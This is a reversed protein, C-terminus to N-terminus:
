VAVLDVSGDVAEALEDLAVLRVPVGRAEQVLLPFLLSTFDERAALVTASPELSAAILGVFPSVQPGIAVDAEAVGHLRAWCARSRGVSLDWGDFGTRGHRWEDQACQVAEWAPRPPM